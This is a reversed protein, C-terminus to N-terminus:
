GRAVAAVSCATSRMAIPSLRRARRPTSHYGEALMRLVEDFRERELGAYPEARIVLRYLDDERWEQCAM